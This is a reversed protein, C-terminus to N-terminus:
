PEFHPWGDEWEMSRIQMRIVGDADGDYYHHILYHNGFAFHVDQGGPGIQHGDGKLIVTGGGEMLPIGDRDVYPGLLSTSRGVAIRYTSETGACCRDWSALLYYYPGRKFITPAEIPNHEVGPRTALAHVPGTSETMSALEQIKLGSWHSGFAIWWRGGDKFVSPDIANYDDDATSTVVPGHDEWSDLDGPTRTSAVGIASTNSGFSSAAYYLYYTRARRVVHPAWLHNVDYDLTWEPLPIEGMSEWPGALTGNSRRVFIGGPDDADLIGTSFVYYTQRDSIIAPDHVPDDIEGPVYDGIDGTMELKGTPPPGTSGGADTPAVWVTAAVVLAISSIWVLTRRTRITSSM